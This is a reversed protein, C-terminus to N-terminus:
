LLKKNEIAEIPIARHTWQIRDSGIGESLLANLVTQLQESTRDNHYTTKVVISDRSYTTRITDYQIPLTLSDPVTSLTLSDPPIEVLSDVSYNLTYIITDHIIETLDPNRQVSDKELGYLTVDLNFKFNTNARVLRSARRIENSSAPSLQSSYPAFHVGTLELEDGAALERLEVEIKEYTPFRDGALDYTKSFYTLRDSEPEISLDYQSGEKLYIVFSGDESPRSSSLKEQTNLDFIVLYSHTGGKMQGDIKMLGKPKVEKPFLLEVLETSRDGKVDKLLYRGLSTASVFQDDENTNVFDLSVPKSWMGNTNRTMYLDMGGKNSPFKDSSFLLTEDDGLIRPVQSNGTNIHAPLETPEEWQGSLDKNSVFLKCGDARNMDMQECRMFYMTQGNSSLSPCAENSKTNLPFGPNVPETWFAGRKESILIDYGGLGGSKQNTLFLFKGETDLAYGRLFNLRSQIHRPMLIPDKWNVGDVKYTYNMSLANDEGNDAIFIMSNGDLSIYPSSQNVSPHNINNPMRRVKPQGILTSSVELLMFLTLFIRM